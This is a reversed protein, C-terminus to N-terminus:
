SPAGPLTVVVTTGSLTLTPSGGACVPSSMQAQPALTLTFTTGAYTGTTFTLDVTMGTGSVGSFTQGLPNITMSNFTATTGAGLANFVVTYVETDTFPTPQVTGAMSGVNILVIPLSAPTTVTIVGSNGLVDAYPSTYYGQDYPANGVVNFSLLAKAIVDYWPGTCPAPGFPSPPSDTYYDASYSRLGYTGANQQLLDTSTTGIAPHFGVEFTCAFIQWIATADTSSAGGALLTNAPPNGTYLPACTVLRPFTVTGGTSVNFVFSGASDVQGTAYGPTTVSMDISLPKM